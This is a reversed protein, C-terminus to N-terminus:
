DFRYSLEVRYLDGINPVGQTIGAPDRLTSFWREDGLNEGVLAVSWKRDHGTAAVRLDVVSRSELVFFDPGALLYDALFQEDTYSYGFRADVSGWSTPLSYTATFALTNEPANFMPSGSIDVEGGPVDPDALSGDKLEADLYSYGVSIDLNESVLWQAELELGKSEADSVNDIAFALGKFTEVQLDSYDIFFLAGNLRLRQDALTSKFGIEYALSDEPEFGAILQNEGPGLSSFSRDPGSNFGGAKYGRSVNGYIMVDNALDYRVALRPSFDDWSDSATLM